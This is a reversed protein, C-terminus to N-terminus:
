DEAKLEAERYGAEFVEFSSEDFKETKPASRMLVEFAVLTDYLKTNAFLIYM